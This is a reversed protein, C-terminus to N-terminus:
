GDMQRVAGRRLSASAGEILQMMFPPDHIIPPPEGFTATWLDILERDTPPLDPIAHSM